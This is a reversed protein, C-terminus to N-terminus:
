SILVLMVLVHMRKIKVIQPHDEKKSKVGVGGGGVERWGGGGVALSSHM